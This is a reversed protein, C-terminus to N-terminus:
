VTEITGVIHRIRFEAKGTDVFFRLTAYSSKRESIYARAEDLTKRATERYWSSWKGDDGKSRSDVQYREYQEKM